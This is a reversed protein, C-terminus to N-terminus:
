QGFLYEDAGQFVSGRYCLVYVIRGEDSRLRYCRERLAVRPSRSSQTEESISSGM